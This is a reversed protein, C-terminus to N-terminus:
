KQRQDNRSNLLGEAPQIPPMPDNTCSNNYGQELDRRSWWRKCWRQWSVRTHARQATTEMLLGAEESEENPCDQMLQDVAAILIELKSGLTEVSQTNKDCVEAGMPNKTPQNTDRAEVGM